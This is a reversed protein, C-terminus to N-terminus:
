IRSCGLLQLSSGVELNEIHPRWLSRPNHHCPQRLHLFWIGPLDNSM